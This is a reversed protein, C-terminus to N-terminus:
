LPVINPQDVKLWGINFLVVRVIENSRFHSHLHHVIIKDSRILDTSLADYKASQNYYNEYNTQSCEILDYVIRAGMRKRANEDDCFRGNQRM